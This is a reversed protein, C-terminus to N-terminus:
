LSFSWSLVSKPEPYGASGFVLSKTFSFKLLGFYLSRMLCEQFVM